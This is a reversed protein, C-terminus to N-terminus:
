RGAPGADGNFTKEFRIRKAEDRLMQNYQATTMIRKKSGGRNANRNAYRDADGTKGSAMFFWTRSNRLDRPMMAGDRYAAALAYQASINGNHAAKRWWMTMRNFDRPLGAGRMYLNGLWYQADDHGQTAARQLWQAAEIYDQDAGRGTALLAGLEHQADAHGLEARDRMSSLRDSANDDTQVLYALLAFDAKAHATGGLGFSLSLGLAVMVIASLRRLVAM